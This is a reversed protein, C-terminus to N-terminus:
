ATSPFAGHDMPKHVCRNNESSFKQVTYVMENHLRILYSVLATGCLGLGRRRPLIVEFEADLDLDSRCYDKPLKIEGLFSLTPLSDWATEAM